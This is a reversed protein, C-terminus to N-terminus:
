AANKMLTEVDIASTMLRPLLIDRAEKLRQNQKALNIVSKIIPECFEHFSTIVHEAPWVTKLSNFKSKSLELFTAGTAYNLFEPVRLKFSYLLFYKHEKKLPTINIFGQNTCFDNEVIGFLGITARSTMMFSDKTMLKASSNKLGSTTIKSASETLFLSKAKSLDTPSFWTIQGDDWYENIETSPTGGGSVHFMDKNLKLQWGIPLGSEADIETHEHNPFRLRVFWEKYTIQAMEELMKIRKLNNEILDDYASLINAIKTQTVLPPLNVKCRYIREPATHRVTAGSASGRIQKRYDQSNFIWYLFSKTVLQENIQIVKGLRQNHLYKGSSPVIAGGGLIPASQILDTMVVLLDNKHLLYESPFTSSYFKEKGVKFKLGGSENFNGPTLLIYDGASTFFEGKFAWGHKVVCLQGITASTWNNALKPQNSM